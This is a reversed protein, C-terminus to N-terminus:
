NCPRVAYLGISNMENGSPAKQVGWNFAFHRPPKYEPFDAALARRAVNEIAGPDDSGAYLYTQAPAKGMPLGVERVNPLYGRGFVLLREPLFPPFQAEVTRTAQGQLCPYADRYIRPALKPDGAARPRRAAEPPKRLSACAGLPLAAVDGFELRLDRASDSVEFRFQVQAAHEAQVNLMGGAALWAALPKSGSRWVLSKPAYVKGEADVLQSIPAEVIGKPGTYRIRVGLTIRSTSAECGLSEVSAQWNSAAADFAVLLLMLRVIM